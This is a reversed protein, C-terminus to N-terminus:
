TAETEARGGAFRSRANAAMQEIAGNRGTDPHRVAGWADVSSLGAPWVRTGRPADEDFEEMGMSYELTLGDPDFFYLFVSGSVPHRGPGFAVTVGHKQMRHLARGIDDIDSVMLNLHHFHPRDSRAIGLGHHFKTPFPRLFVTGEEIRDSERFGLVNCFFRVSRDADPTAIVVHGIRQVRTHSVDTCVAAGQLRCYFEQVAGCTPDVVCVGTGIERKRLAQISFPVAHTTLAVELSQLQSLDALEWGISKLGAESAQHLTLFCADSGCAFEAAAGAADIEQLGVIDGYFRRSRRLDTVNLDVRGLRAYRIM